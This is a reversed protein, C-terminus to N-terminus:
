DSKRRSKVAFWFTTLLWLACALLPIVLAENQQHHVVANAEDFYRGESNFLPRWRWYLEYYLWACVATSVGAIAVWVYAARRLAKVRM